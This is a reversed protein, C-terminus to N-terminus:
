ELVRVSMDKVISGPFSVAASGINVFDCSYLFAYPIKFLLKDNSPVQM